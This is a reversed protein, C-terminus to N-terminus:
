YTKGRRMNWKQFKKTLFALVEDDSEDEQDDESSEEVESEIM